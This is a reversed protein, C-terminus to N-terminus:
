SRGFQRLSPYQPQLRKQTYTRVTLVVHSNRCKVGDTVADVIKRIDRARLQNNKGVKIFGKSADVFLVDDRDRKQRLVM